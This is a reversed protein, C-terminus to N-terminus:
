VIGSWMDPQDVGVATWVSQALAKENKSLLLILTNFRPVRAFNEMYERVITKIRSDGEKADLIAMFCQMISVLM